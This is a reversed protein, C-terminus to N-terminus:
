YTYAHTKWHTTWKPCWVRVRVRVCVLACVCQTKGTKAQEEHGPQDAECVCACARVCVCACPRAQKPRNRTVPNIPKKDAMHNQLVM